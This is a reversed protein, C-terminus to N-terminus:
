KQKRDVRWSQRSGKKPLRKGRSANETHPLTVKAKRPALNISQQFAHFITPVDFEVQRTCVAKKREVELAIEEMSMTSYTASADM